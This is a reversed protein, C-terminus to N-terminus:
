KFYSKKKSDKPAIEDIVDVLDVTRANYYKNLQQMTSHGTIRQLILPNVNQNVANTIFTHRFLHLSTKYVGRENCYKKVSDQLSTMAMIENYITPFLYDEPDGGRMEIYDLMVDYVSKSIPVRRPKKNKTENVSIARNMMDVNKVKLERLERARIGTSALVWVITYTRTAVFDKKSPSELLAKLEDDTYIDKFTEQGKIAPIMFDNLIYRKSIGYKIIPSINRIYSNLTVTNSIGKDKKMYLIYKEVLDLGIDKCMLENGAFDIFYQTHYKYSKITWESLNRIEAQRIFEEALEKFTKNQSPKSAMVRNTKIDGRKM